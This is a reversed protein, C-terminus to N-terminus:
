LPNQCYKRCPDEHSKFDCAFAFYRLCRSCQYPGTHDHFSILHRALGSNEKFTRKCDPYLCKVDGGLVRAKKAPSSSANAVPSSPTPLSQAQALVEGLLDLCESDFGEEGHGGEELLPAEKVQEASNAPSSRLCDFIDVEKYGEEYGDTEVIPGNHWDNVLRKAGCYPEMSFLSFAFFLILFCRM